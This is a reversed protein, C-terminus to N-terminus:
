KAEWQQVLWDKAEEETASLHFARGSFQIAAEFVVKRIGEVGVVAGAKVFPKNYLVFEKLVRNLAPNYKADTVNTLTLVSQQPKVSLLKKTSAVVAIIEELECRSIDIRLIEKGKHQIFEVRNM